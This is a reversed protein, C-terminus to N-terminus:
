ALISIRGNDNSKAEAKSIEPAAETEGASTRYPSAPNQAYGPKQQYSGGNSMQAFPNAQQQDPRNFDQQGSANHQRHSSQDFQQQSSNSSGQGMDSRTEISGALIVTLHEVKVGQAELSSKLTDAQSKLLAHSEPNSAVLRASLENNGLSVLNVRVEGLNDPNLRIILEKHGHKVSYATGELVQEMPQEARSVFQPASAQSAPQDAKGVTQTSVSGIAEVPMSEPQGVTAETQVAVEANPVTQEMFTTFEAPATAPNTGTTTDANQSDNAGTSNSQGEAGNGTRTESSYIQNEIRGDLQSLKDQVEMLKELAKAHPHNEIHKGVSAIANEIGTIPLKENAMLDTEATIVEAPGAESVALPMPAQQVLDGPEGKASNETAPPPPLHHPTDHQPTSLQFAESAESSPTNSGTKSVKSASAQSFKELVPPLSGIPLSSALSPQSTGTSEVSVTVQTANGTAATQVFAPMNQIQNLIEVPMNQQIEPTQMVSASLNANANEVASVQPSATQMAEPSQSAASLQVEESDSSKISDTDKTASTKTDVSVSVNSAHSTQGTAAIEASQSAPNATNSSAEPPLGSKDKTSVPLEQGTQPIAIDPTETAIQLSSTDSAAATEPATQLSEPTNTVQQSSPHLLTQITSILNLPFGKLIGGSAKETNANADPTAAPQLTESAIAAEASGEAAPIEAPVETAATAPINEAPVPQQNLAQGLLTSFEASLADADDTNARPSTDPANGTAQSLMSSALDLPLQM